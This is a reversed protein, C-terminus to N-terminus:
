GNNQHKLATAIPQHVMCSGSGATGQRLAWICCATMVLKVAPSMCIFGYNCARHLSNVKSLVVLGPILWALLGHESQHSTKCMRSTWLSATAMVNAVRMWSAPSVATPTGTWCQRRCFSISVTLVYADVDVSSLTKQLRKQFCSAM